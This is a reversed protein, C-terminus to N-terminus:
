QEGKLSASEALYSDFPRELSFVQIGYEVYGCADQLREAAQMTQECTPQVTCEKFLKVFGDLDSVVMAVRARPGAPELPFRSRVAHQVRWERGDGDGRPTSIVAILNDASM